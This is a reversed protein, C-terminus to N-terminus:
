SKRISHVKNHILIEIIKNFIMREGKKFMSIIVLPLNNSGPHFYINFSKSQKGKQNWEVKRIGGFNGISRGAKPNQSLFEVINEREEVGFEKNTKQVFEQFEIVTRM